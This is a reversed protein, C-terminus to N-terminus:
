IPIVLQGVRKANNVVFDVMADADIDWESNAAAKNVAAQHSMLEELYSLGFKKLRRDYDDDKDCYGFASEFADCGSCSGYSGSVWGVTGKFKVMAYWEGQYSGFEAFAMVTAGAAELAEKYSM